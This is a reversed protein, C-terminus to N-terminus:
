CVILLCLPSLMVEGGGVGHTLINNQTGQNQFPGTIIVKMRRVDCSNQKADLNSSIYQEKIRHGVRRRENLSANFM